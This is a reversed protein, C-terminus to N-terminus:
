FPCDKEVAPKDEKILENINDIVEEYAKKYSPVKIENLKPRLILGRDITYIDEGIKTHWLLGILNRMMDRSVDHKPNNLVYRFTGLVIDMASNAHSAGVCTSAFMKIRPIEHNTGNAELGVQFKKTLYQYQNGEPVNDIIVIGDDSVRGLYQHFRSIVYDAAWYVVQELPQAKVIGHHIIQVVFKIGCLHCAEIVWQKAQLSQEPSVQEPRSNTDFKLTDTPLYGLKKRIKGIHEDLQSLANAPMLIGGYVFFKVKDSSSKNTEDTLLIHM